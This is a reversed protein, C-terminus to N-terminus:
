PSVMIGNIYQSNFNQQLQSRVAPIKEEFEMKYFFDKWHGQDVQNLCLTKRKKLLSNYTLQGAMTLAEKEIAVVGLDQSPVVENGPNSWKAKIWVTYHQTNNLSADLVVKQTKPIVWGPISGQDELSNAFM